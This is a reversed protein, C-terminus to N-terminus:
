KAICMYSLISKETCSTCLDFSLLWLMYTSCLNILASAFFRMGVFREYRYFILAGIGYRMESSDEGFAAHQPACVASPRSVWSPRRSPHHNPEFPAISHQGRRDLRAAEVQFITNRTLPPFPLIEISITVRNTAISKGVASLSASRRFPKQISRQLQHLDRDCKKISSLHSVPSSM